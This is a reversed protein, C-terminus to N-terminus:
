KQEQTFDVLNDVLGRLEKREVGIFEKLKRGTGMVDEDFSTAWERDMAFEDFGRAWDRPDQGAVDGAESRPQVLNWYLRKCHKGWHSAHAKIQMLQQSSPPETWYVASDPDLLRLKLCDSYLKKSMAEKNRQPDM